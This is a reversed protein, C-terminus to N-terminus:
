EISCCDGPDEWHFVRTNKRNVKGYCGPLLKLDEDLTPDQDM